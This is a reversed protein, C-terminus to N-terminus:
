YRDLKHAYPQPLSPAGGGPFWATGIAEYRAPILLGHVRAEDASWYGLLLRILVLRDSVFEGRQLAAFAIDHAGAQEEGSYQGWRRRLEPELAQLLSSRNLVAAMMGGSPPFTQKYTCGARRAVQGVLSDLPECVWFTELRMQWCRNAIEVLLRHAADADQAALEDVVVRPASHGFAQGQLIAYGRVVGDAELVLTASGPRWTEQPILRNWGAHREHTWPRQAHATNYLGIIAPLDDVSASRINGASFSARSTAMHEVHRIPVVLRGEALSTVFGFKEYVGEIGDSVFAVDVRSAMGALTQVLLKSMHGQRRFQPRTEVGGIGEANVTTAGFRQRFCHVELECVPEPEDERWLYCYRVPSSRVIQVAEETYRLGPEILTDVVFNM